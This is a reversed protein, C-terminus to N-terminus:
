CAAWGPHTHTNKSWFQVDTNNEWRFWMCENPSSHSTLIISCEPFNCYIYKDQEINVGHLRYWVNPKAKSEDFHNPCLCHLRKTKM